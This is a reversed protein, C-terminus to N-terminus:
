LLVDFYHFTIADLDGIVPSAFVVFDTHFLRLVCIEDIGLVESLNEVIILFWQPNIIGSIHVGDAGGGFYGIDISILAYKLIPTVGDFLQCLM